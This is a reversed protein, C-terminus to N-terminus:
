SCTKKLGHCQRPTLGTKFPPPTRPHCDTCFSANKADNPSILIKGGCGACRTKVLLDTLPVKKKKAM